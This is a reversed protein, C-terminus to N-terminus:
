RGRLRARRPAFTDAIELMREDDLRAYVTETVSASSHGFIAAIDKYDAGEDLMAQAVFHRIKHPSVDRLDRVEAPSAGEALRQDALGDAAAKVIRWGAVASLQGGAGRPGHSIFVGEATPFRERRAALYQGIWLRADEDLRLPRQKRGKGTIEAASVILGRVRVQRVSLSLVENIRGGSAFLAGILAQNRLLSLYERHPVAEGPSPPLGHRAALFAQLQAPYYNPLERLDPVRPAVLPPKPGVLRELLDRVGAPTEVQGLRNPIGISLTGHDVLAQLWRTLVGIHVHLSRRRLGRQQLSKVYDTLLHVRLDALDYSRPHEQLWRGFQSLASRYTGLTHRSRQREQLSALWHEMADILGPALTM